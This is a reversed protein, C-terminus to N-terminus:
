LVAAMEYHANEVAIHLASAGTRPAGHFATAKRGAAANPQITDNVNAGAKLLSRVAPIQGERVALLFADFGSDLRARFDAGAKIVAEMVAVNGEAAAWMIATQGRKAEKADTKAGHKLLVSVAEVNGTRSATMLPTEGDAIPANPDAGSNILMEIIAANG